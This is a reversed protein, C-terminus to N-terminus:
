AEGEPRLYAELMDLFEDLGAKAESSVPLIAESGYSRLLKQM